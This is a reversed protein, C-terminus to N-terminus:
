DINVIERCKPYGSCGWFQMGANVGRKATRLIMISGCKPCKQNDDSNENIDHPNNLKNNQEKSHIINKVHCIHKINTTFNRSLRTNELIGLIQFVENDDFLEEKRSCIFKTMSIGGAIVNPPLKDRNKLICDGVFIIVHVFVEKPLDLIKALCAIHKYNQRLPNQFSNKVKFIVQIWKPANEEGYIWGKMNKTEVVFIGYRSIVIHDIQTTGSQEDPITINDIIHYKNKDLMLKLCLSVTLEGLKGKVAPQKLLFILILMLGLLLYTWTM